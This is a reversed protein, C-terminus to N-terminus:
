CRTAWGNFAYTGAKSLITQNMTVDDPKIWVAVTFDGFPHLGPHDSIEVFDDVGDFYLAGGKIGSVIQAGSVMGDAKYWSWDMVKGNWVFDFTWHGIVHRWLGDPHGLLAQETEDVQIGQEVDLDDGESECGLACNALAIALVLLGHITCNKM